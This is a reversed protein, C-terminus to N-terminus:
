CGRVNEYLLIQMRSSFLLNKEDCVKGLWSSREILEKRTTAEPMLLIRSRPLDYRAMLGEVEKLDVPRQIVYKFCANSLSSFLGYADQNERAEVPNESNALKPSVNWQDVVEVLEPSPIITGNTEIEIFYGEPKLRGCVEALEKQQLLPEGGTVVLQKCAYSRIKKVVEDTGMEKVEKACEYEDWDWTYKTDCWACRLNCLALRLFIAPMGANLGEGQFSYYIESVRLVM